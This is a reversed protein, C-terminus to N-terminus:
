YADIDLPGRCLDRWDLGQPGFQGCRPAMLEWISKYHSFKFFDEESVMLCVTCSIYKTFFIDLTGSLLDKDPDFIPRAGPAM